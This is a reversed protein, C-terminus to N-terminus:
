DFDTCCNDDAESDALLNRLYPSNLDLKIIDLMDIRKLYKIFQSLTTNLYDDNMNFAKQLADNMYRIENRSPKIKYKEFFKIKETVYTSVSFPLAKGIYKKDSDILARMMTEGTNFEEKAIAADNVANAYRLHNRAIAHQIQYSDPRISSSIQLYNFAMNYERNDQNFLGLQLWYYSINKFDDKVALFISDIDKRSLKLDSKLRDHSLLSQFVYSWKDNTKEDVRKSICKLVSQLVLVINEHTKQLILKKLLSNRLAVGNSDIRVFDVIGIKSAGIDKNLNIRNGYREIYLEKPYTEIDLMDFIALELLLQKEEDSLIDLSNTYENIIRDAVNGYTLRLILNVMNRKKTIESIRERKSLPALYSLFSKEELKDLILEIDNESFDPKIEHDIFPNGELFYKKRKHYYTRSATVFIIEKKDVPKAFCSEIVQYYYAANDVIIAIKTSASVKIYKWIAKKNFATGQYDLVEFGKSILYYGIYKLACSKGSFVSGYLSFCSVSNHLNMLKELKDISEKFGTTNVIWNESADQWKCFEGTFLKSEYPSVFTNEEIDSLRYVRSYHLNFISKQLEKPNFNIKHVLSLFEETNAEILEGGLDRIRRKLAMDPSPNIFVLKNSKFKYGADEYTQLYSEIDPEDLSAGVFIVNQNILDDTLSKLKFDLKKSILKNYESKSFVYGDTPNNVCGHLKYITTHEFSPEEEIFSKNQVFFPKNQTTYIYELLDDINVTYIVKWPYSTIKLHYDDDPVTTNVFYRTLLKTLPDKSGYLSYVQECVERLDYKIVEAYEIDNTKPKILTECIQNKLEAGSLLGSSSKAGKSFGAGLFLVPSSETLIIRLLNEQTSNIM